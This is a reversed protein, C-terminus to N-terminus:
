RPLSRLFAVFGEPHFFQASVDGFGVVARDSLIQPDRASLRKGNVVTGNRSGADILQWARRGREFWAHLRSLSPHDIVVANENTRGVTIRGKADPHTVMAIRAEPGFRPPAHGSKPITHLQATSPTKLPDHEPLEFILVPTELAGELADPAQTYRAIWDTLPEVM